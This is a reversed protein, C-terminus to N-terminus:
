QRKPPPCFNIPTVFLAKKSELLASNSRWVVIPDDLMCLSFLSLAAKQHRFIAASSKTVPFHSLLFSKRFWEGNRYTDCKLPIHFYFIEPENPLCLEGSSFFRFIESQVRDHSNNEEATVFCM